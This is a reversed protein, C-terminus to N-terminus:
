ELEDLVRNCEGDADENESRHRWVFRVKGVDKLQMKLDLAWEILDRNVVEVGRSNEWGNNIWKHSWENMCKVAYQSDTFITVKMKPSSHLQEYRELAWELAVIFAILEARQNTPRPVAPLAQTRSQWRKTTGSYNYYRICAAAGVASHKGNNRCAGDVRFTMFYVM